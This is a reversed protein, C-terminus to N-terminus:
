LPNVATTQADACLRRCCKGAPRFRKCVHSDASYEGLAEVLLPEGHQHQQLDSEEWFLPKYPLGRVLRWIKVMKRWSVDNGTTRTMMKTRRRRRKWTLTSFSLLKQPTKRHDFSSRNPSTSHVWSERGRRWRRGSGSSWSTTQTWDAWRTLGTWGSITGSIFFYNLVFLCCANFFFRNLNEGLSALVKSLPGGGVSVSPQLCLCLIQVNHLSFRVKELWPSWLPCVGSALDTVFSKAKGGFM